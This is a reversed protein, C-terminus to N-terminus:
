FVSSLFKKLLLKGNIGKQRISLQIEILSLLINYLTDLSFQKAKSANIKYAYPHIKFNSIIKKDDINDVKGTKIIIINNITTLFINLISEVNTNMSILNNFVRLAKIRNKSLYLDVLQFISEERMPSIIKKLKDITLFNDEIKTNVIKNLELSIAELNNNLNFAM